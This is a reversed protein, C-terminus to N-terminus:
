NAIFAYSTKFTDTLGSTFTTFTSSDDTNFGIGTLVARVYDGDFTSTAANQVTVVLTFSENQGELVEYGNTGADGTSSFAFSTSAAAIYTGEADSLDVGFATGSTSTGAESVGKDVYITDGFATVDFKITLKVYDDDNSDGAVQEVETDVLDVSIGSAYFSHADSTASGTKDGPAVNDGEEDEIDWASDDPNVYFYISDGAGFNGDLDNVDVRVIVEVTEGAELDWDLNDFTTEIGTDTDSTINESGIVDGDVVLEMSNIIEGVGAGTSTARVVLDDINIDADGEVEIEFSFVEVGNTDNNDDVAISRADNIEDDGASVKVELDAASAFDVFKFVVPNEIVTETVTSGQADRFRVQTFDVDWSDGGNDLSADDINGLASVAVVLEGTEGARIIAGKDLSVTKTYTNDDNFEDADVRAVEEGDLWISVEEAYEDVDDDNNTTGEDSFVIKVATIELDSGDDAEVELGAVEVDEDGEGVEENSLKSVIDTSEINGAGGELDGGSTGGNSSGGAACLANAKAMSSPGFYGTPSTLGAPVLIDASYKVQFKSVAAATAPGYYSTEMGASGAGSAAVMTDAASNLFKQLAMVDAGTSGQGLSRTFTVTCSGAVGTQGSVQAQLQNVLAVLQELSMSSVDQAKASPAVLTFAMAVAVFAVAAKAVINKTITM